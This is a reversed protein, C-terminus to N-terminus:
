WGPNNPKLNPNVSIEDTPIPNLYDREPKFGYGSAGVATFYPDLYNESDVKLNGAANKLLQEYYAGRPRQGVFLAHARWRMLDDFRFGENMLEVTRERRIEQLVPTLSYGYDPWNPDTVISSMVLEPMNVSKRKRLQNISLDMDAQTITGLEAKAEAYILLAEAYRMIIKATNRTFNGTTADIQPIRYKQSEYGGVASNNTTLKPVVFPTVAGSLAISLTDGPVMVTAALRPDRNTELKSLQQDGQYLPSLAYPLGDKCLYSRIAFLTYSSRNPWSIQLDNGYANGLAFNYQKWLIVEPNNSLSTQNFLNAYSTHLSLTKDDILRKAAAAAQELYVTGTSGEVGYATGKHYKEWTGEYLAISAKLLLAAEKNIRPNNNTLAAKTKLLAIAQDLDALMFDVVKNRPDRGKYLYEVDNNSIYKDIIPLDGYSKLLIFYYYARFFLGEGKYQDIDSTAGSAKDVNALFYNAKRVNGWFWVSNSSTAPITVNGLLRNSPDTSSLSLDTGNDPMASFGNGVGAWGPLNQYFSNSYLELDGTTKWFEPESIEDLPNRDLFDNKCSNLALFSFVLILYRLKKM